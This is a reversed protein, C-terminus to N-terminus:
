YFIIKQFAQGISTQFPLSINKVRLLKIITREPFFTAFDMVHFAFQLKQSLTL